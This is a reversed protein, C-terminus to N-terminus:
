NKKYAMKTTIPAGGGQFDPRTSEVLLNGSSPDLSMVMKIEVLNGGFDMKTNVGLKGGDWKATSVQDVSNGQMNLVNRSESGDLKYNSTFTGIQTTRTITMTSADQTITAEMGLGGGMGPQANPDPVLTWKGAFNPPAQAAAITISAIAAVLTLVQRM